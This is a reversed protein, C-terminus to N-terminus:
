RKGLDDGLDNLGSQGGGRYKEIQNDSDQITGVYGRCSSSTTLIAGVGMLAIACVAAFKKLDPYVPPILMTTM